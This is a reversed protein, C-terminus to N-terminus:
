GARHPQPSSALSMARSPAMAPLPANGPIGVIPGLDLQLTIVVREPGRERNHAGSGDIIKMRRGHRWGARVQSAARWWLCFSATCRVWPTRGRGLVAPLAGHRECVCSASSMHM